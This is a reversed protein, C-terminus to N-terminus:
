LINRYNLKKYLLGKGDFIKNCTNCQMFNLSGHIEYIKENLFGSKQFHGDVNSTVIFYDEIWSEKVMQRLIDFGYHPNIRRYM